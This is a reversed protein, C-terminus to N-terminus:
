RVMILESTNTNFLLIPLFASLLKLYSNTLSLERSMIFHFSTSSWTPYNASSLLLADDTSWNALADASGTIYINESLLSKNADRDLAETLREGGFVTTAEVNFTVPVTNGSGGSQTLCKNPISLGKAGWSPFATGNRAEFVTLASAYSWTLDVASLPSGDDKSFQESLGGNSPTYKAAIAIFGDAYNRIASTLTAYATSSSSYTGTTISADFTQFFPLSM